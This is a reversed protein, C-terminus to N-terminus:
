VLRAPSVMPSLSCFPKVELLASNSLPKDLSGQTRQRRARDSRAVSAGEEQQISQRAREAFDWNGQRLLAAHKLLMSALKSSFQPLAHILLDEMRSIFVASHRQEDTESFGGESFKLPSLQFGGCLAHSVKAADPRAVKAEAAAAVEEVDLPHKEVSKQLSHLVM